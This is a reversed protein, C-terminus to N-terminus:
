PRGESADFPKELERVVEVNGGRGKANKLRNCVMGVGAQFGEQWDQSAVQNDPQVIENQIVTDTLIDPGGTKLRERFKKVAARGGARRGALRQASHFSDDGWTSGDTFEIFDVSLILESVPQTYKSSGANHLTRSQHPQLLLSLSPLHSLDVGTAHAKGSGFAVSEKIAYARIPKNSVNTITYTYQPSLPDSSDLFATSILLMSEPQQEVSIKPPPIQTSARGSFLWLATSLTFLIFLRIFIKQMDPRPM